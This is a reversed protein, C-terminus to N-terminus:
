RAQVAATILGFSTRRRTTDEIGCGRRQREAISESKACDRALECM